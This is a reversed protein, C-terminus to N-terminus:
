KKRDRIAAAAAEYVRKAHALTRETKDLRKWLPDDKKVAAMRRETTQIVRLLDSMKRIFDRRHLPYYNLTKAREGLKTTIAVLASKRQMEEIYELRNDQEGKERAVVAPSKTRPGVGSKVYMWQVWYASKGFHAAIEARTMKDEGTLNWLERFTEIVPDPIQEDDQDRMRSEM